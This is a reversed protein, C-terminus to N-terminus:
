RKNLRFDNVNITGSRHRPRQKSHEEEEPAAVAEVESHEAPRAAPAVLGVPAPPEPNAAPKHPQRLPNTRERKLRGPRKGRPQVAAKVAEPMAPAGAGADPAKALPPIPIPPPPVAPQKMGSSGTGPARGTVPVPSETTAIDDSAPKSTWSGAAYVLLGAVLLLAAAAGARVMPKPSAGALTGRPTSGHAPPAHLSPSPPTLLPPLTSPNSMQRLYGDPTSLRQLAELLTRVDPHRDDRRRAMARLVEDNLSSPLDLRLSKPPEPTTNAVQIAIAGFTEGDFPLRGTLAQYLLVGFAYVDARADVDKAGEIQELPMYSPTGMTVGSQTIGTRRGQDDLLKSIGFDLVKVVREEEPGEAVFINEPKIDRHVIGQAHAAAVGRMAQVVYGILTPIPLEGDRLVDDLPQGRLLDMVMFLSGRDSGVDHVDVVNPHQIGASARAERMFRERAEPSAALAPNLWKLAVRKGVLEHEVEYVAGMGGQGLKRIVRYKGAITDGVRPLGARSGAVAPDAAVTPAKAAQLLWASDSTENAEEDSM